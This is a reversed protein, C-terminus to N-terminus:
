RHVGEATHRDPDRASGRSSSLGRDHGIPDAIPNLPDIPFVKHASDPAIQMVAQAHSPTMTLVVDARDVMEPTLMRSQHASLDIGRERLVELTQPSAASGTGAAVGASCVEISLGNPDRRHEWDRALGEAMPSRCTNGTCVFVVRTKLKDMIFGEDVASVQEIKFRGDPWLRITSSKRGYLAPGENIIVEPANEHEFVTTDALDASGHGGWISVGVSRALTPHGSMRIVRRAVPHDPIRFAITDHRDVVGESLGLKDRIQRLVHEPQTLVMRVPSPSLKTILRRTVVSEIELMPYLWDLDALHLTFLPTHVFNAPITLSTLLEAGQDTAHVFVGYVSDTPMIVCNGERLHNSAQRLTEEKEEPKLTAFYRGLRSM